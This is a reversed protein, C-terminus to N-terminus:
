KEVEPSFSERIYSRVKESIDLFSKENKSKFVVTYVEPVTGKEFEEKSIQTEIKVSINM